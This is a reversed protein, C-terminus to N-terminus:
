VRGQDRYSYFKDDAIIVHDLFYVRMTECAKRIKETIKDDSRSPRSNGSPHNHCCALVTASNLLAEKLIVRVDVLTETLGGHSIKEAKILKCNNNMLLIWFEEQDLYQVKPHMFNYIALSSSLDEREPIAMSIRKGLEFSALIAKARATGIEKVSTLDNEKLMRLKTLKCDALKYIERAANMTESNNEGMILTLLDITSLSEYGKKEARYDPREEMVIDMM